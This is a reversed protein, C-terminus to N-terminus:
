NKPHKDRLYPTGFSVIAVQKVLRVHLNHQVSVQITNEQHVRYKCRQDSPVSIDQMVFLLAQTLHFELVVGSEQQVHHQSCPTMVKALLQVFTATQVHIASRNHNIDWEMLTHALLVIKLLQPQLQAFSDQQVFEVM